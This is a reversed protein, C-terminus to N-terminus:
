VVCGETKEEEANGHGNRNAILWVKVPKWPETGSREIM